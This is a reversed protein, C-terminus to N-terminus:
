YKVAFDVRCVPGVGELWGGVGTHTTSQSGGGGAQVLVESCACVAVLASLMDSLYTEEKHLDHICM